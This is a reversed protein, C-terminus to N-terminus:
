RFEYKNTKGSSWILIKAADRKIVCRPKEDRIKDDIAM